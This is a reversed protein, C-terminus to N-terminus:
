IEHEKRKEKANKQKTEEVEKEYKEIKDTLKEERDILRYGSLDFLGNRDLEQLIEQVDILRNLKNEYHKYGEILRKRQKEQNKAVSIIKEKTLDPRLNDSALLKKEAFKFQRVEEKYKQELKIKQLMTAREIENMIPLYKEYTVLLKAVNNYNKIKGDIEAIKEKAQNKQEVIENLRQELQSASVIKEERITNL